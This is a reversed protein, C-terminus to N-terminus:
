GELGWSASSRLSASEDLQFETCHQREQADPMDPEGTADWGEAFPWAKLVADLCAPMEYIDAYLGRKCIDYHRCRPARPGPHFQKRLKGSPWITCGAVEIEKVETAKEAKEKLIGAKRREANQKQNCAACIGKPHNKAHAIGLPRPVHCRPCVVEVKLLPRCRSCPDAYCARRCHSCIM